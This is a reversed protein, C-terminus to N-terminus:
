AEVYEDDGDAYPQANLVLYALEGVLSYVEGQPIVVVDGRGALVPEADGIRFTASGDLVYYVRPSRLTRLPRHAGSLRVETLSLGAGDEGRLLARLVLDDEPADVEPRDAGRILM